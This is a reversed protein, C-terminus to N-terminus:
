CTLIAGEILAVTRPRPEELSFFVPGGPTASLTASASERWYESRITWQRVLSISVDAVLRARTSSKESQDFISQMEDAFRERFRQPHLRLISHYVLGLM